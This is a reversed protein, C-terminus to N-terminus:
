KKAARRMFFVILGVIVVLVALCCLSIVILIWFAPSIAGLGFQAEVLLDNPQVTVTYTSEFGATEFVNSRRTVEDSFEVELIHYDAFGYALARCSTTDCYLGQPGLEELPSADSCDALDCEYLVGSIIQMDSELLNTFNFYMQPKPGTDALAADVPLLSVVLFFLLFLLKAPKKNM